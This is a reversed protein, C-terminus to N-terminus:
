GHKTRRKKKPRIAGDEAWDERSDLGDSVTQDWQEREELEQNWAKKDARLAAYGATLSTFFVKRRYDELAKDLVDMMTQGTHKALTGLLEHSAKGIRVTSTSMNTAEPM